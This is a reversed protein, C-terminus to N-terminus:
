PFLCKAITLGSNGILVMFILVSHPFCNWVRDLYDTQRSIQKGDKRRPHDELGHCFKTLRAMIWWLLFFRIPELNINIHYIGYSRKILLALTSTRICINWDDLQKIIVKHKSFAHIVMKRPWRWSDYDGQLFGVYVSYLGFQSVVLM